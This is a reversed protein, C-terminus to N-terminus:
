TGSGQGPQDSGMSITGSKHFPTWSLYCCEPVSGISTKVGFSTAWNSINVTQMVISAPFTCYLYPLHMETRMYARAIEM